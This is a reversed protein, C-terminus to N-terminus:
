KIGSSIQIGSIIRQQFALFFFVIPLGAAWAAAM